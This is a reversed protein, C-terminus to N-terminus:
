YPVYDGIGQVSTIGRGTASIIVFTVSFDYNYPSGIAIVGDGQEVEDSDGIEVPDLDQSEIKLLALDSLEDMGVIKAKFERRDLFKVLVEDAEQVVHYNTIVYGNKDIVFGSGTSISEREQQRPIDMEPFPFGFERFLEEPFSNMSRQSLKVKRVSQINVVSESQDKVLESFDFEHAQVTFLTLLLTYLFNKM